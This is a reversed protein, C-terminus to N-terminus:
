MDGAAGVLSIEVDAAGVIAAEGTAVIAAGNVAGAAVPDYPGGAVVHTTCGRGVLPTM